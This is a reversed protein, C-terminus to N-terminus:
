LGKSMWDIRFSILGSYENSPNIRFSFSWDKPWRINLVSETSFVMISPFISSLLLLPGCLILHNSPMVLEISMPKLLKWSNPPRDQQLGHTQLFNSMVSHSFQVSRVPTLHYRMTTKIKMERSILSISCRKMHKHAM